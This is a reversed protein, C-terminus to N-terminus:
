TPNFISRCALRMPQIVMFVRERVGSPLIRWQIVTLVLLLALAGGAQWPWYVTKLGFGLLAGGALITSFAALIPAHPDPRHGLRTVSHGAFWGPLLLSGALEAIFLALGVGGLGHAPALLLVGGVTLAARLASSLAQAKLHNIAALYSQMPAALTRVLIAAALWCFLTRDFALKGRTWYAYVPEVLYLGAVFGGNILAGSLLWFFSFVAVLKEAERRVHYRVLDAQIPNLLFGTGQMATNSLTRLTTFLPVVAAGLTGTVLLVVGQLSFMDLLSVGTLVNSRTFNRFGQSFDGGRWWPFLGPYLRYIDYLLLVNAVFVLGTFMLSTGVLGWGLWASLAVALFQVIRAITGWWMSRVFYGTPLFLRVLIAGVSGTAIWGVTYIVVALSFEAAHMSGIGLWQAARGSLCLLLVALIQVSSTLAAVRVASALTRRFVAQDEVYYRSLLNGVYAQHGGDLSTLIGALAGVSLWLGYTEQPWFRLLMPVQILNLGLNLAFSVGSVLGGKAARTHVPEAPAPAAAPIKM